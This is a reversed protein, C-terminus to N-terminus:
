ILGGRELNTYYFLSLTFKRLFFSKIKNEYDQLQHYIGDIFVISNETRYLLFYKTKDLNLRRYGKSRLRPNLCLQFSEASNSLVFKGNEVSDIFHNAAQKNRLHFLLYEAISDMDEMANETFIVKYDM